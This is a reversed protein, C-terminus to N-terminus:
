KDDRAKLVGPRSGLTVVRQPLGGDYAGGVDYAVLGLWEGGETDVTVHSPTM